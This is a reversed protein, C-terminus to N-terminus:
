AMGLLSVCINHKDLPLAKTLIDAPNNESRVPHLDIRKQTVHEKIKHVRLSIAKSKSLHVDKNAMFIAAQNDVHLRPPISFPLGIEQFIHSFWVMEDACASAAVYEAEATSTAVVTQKKSKWSVAAGNHIVVFGTTSRMDRLDGGWDSDSFGTISGMNANQPRPHCYVLGLNRTGLLYRIVRKAATVHSSRPKTMYRALVNVSFTIDPRAVTGIWLLSGIAKAYPFVTDILSEDAETLRGVLSLCSRELYNAELDRLL